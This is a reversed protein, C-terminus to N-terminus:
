HRLVGFWSLTAPSLVIGFQACTHHGVFIADIRLEEFQLTLGDELAGPEVDAADLVYRALTVVEGLLDLDGLCRDDHHAVLVTLNSGEVVDTPVASVLQHPVVKGTVLGFAATAGEGALVMGPPISQVALQVEDLLLFLEEVEVFLSVPQDGHM